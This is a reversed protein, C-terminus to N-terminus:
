QWRKSCFTNQDAYYVGSWYLLQLLYIFCTHRRTWGSSRWGCVLGDWMRQFQRTIFETNLFKIYQYNRCIIWSKFFFLLPRPWKCGKECVNVNKWESWECRRTNANRSFQKQVLTSWKYEGEGLQRVKGIGFFLPLTFTRQSRSPPTRQCIVALYSSTQSTSTFAASAHRHQNHVTKQAAETTKKVLSSWRKGLSRNMELLKSWMHSITSFAAVHISLSLTCTVEQIPQPKLFRLPGPQM